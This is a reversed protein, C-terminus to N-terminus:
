GRSLWRRLRTSWSDPEPPPEPEPPPPPPEPAHTVLVATVRALLEDLERRRVRGTVAISFRVSQLDPLTGRVGLALPGGRHHRAFHRGHMDDDEEHVVTGDIQECPQRVPVLPLSGAARVEAFLRELDAAARALWRDYPASESDFYNRIAAGDDGEPVRVDVTVGSGIFLVFLEGEISAGAEGSM